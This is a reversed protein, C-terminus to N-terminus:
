YESEKESWRAGVGLILYYNVAIDAQTLKNVPGMVTGM